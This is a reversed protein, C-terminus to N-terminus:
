QQQRRMWILKWELQKSVWAGVGQSERIIQGRSESQFSEDERAIGNLGGARM